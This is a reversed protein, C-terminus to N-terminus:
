NSSLLFDLKLLLPPTAPQHARLGRLLAGQERPQAGPEPVRAAGMVLGPGLGRLPCRGVEGPGQRVPLEGGPAHVTLAM